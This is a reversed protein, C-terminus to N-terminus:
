FFISYIHADINQAFENHMVGENQFESQALIDIIKQFEKTNSPVVIEAKNINKLAIDKYWYAVNKLVYGLISQPCIVFEFYGASSQTNNGIGILVLGCIEDFTNRIIFFDGLRSFLYYRINLDNKFKENIIKNNIVIYDLYSQGCLFMSIERIDVESAVSMSYTENISQKDSIMMPNGERWKILNVKEFSILTSTIDKFLNETSIKPYSKSLSQVIDDVTNKGTALKLIKLSTDNMVLENTYGCNTIFSIMNNKEHRFYTMNNKLFIPVSYKLMKRKEELYM